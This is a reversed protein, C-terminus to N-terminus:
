LVITGLDLEFYPSVGQHKILRVVIKDWPIEVTQSDWIDNYSLTIVKLTFTENANKYAKLLAEPSKFISGLMSSTSDMIMGNVMEGRFFSVKDNKQSYGQLFSTTPLQLGGATLSDSTIKGVFRLHYKGCSQASVTQFLILGFFLIFLHKM